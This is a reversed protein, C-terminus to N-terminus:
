AAEQIVDQLTMDTEGGVSGAKAWFKSLHRTGSDCIITVIRHGPGMQLALRAAAAGSPDFTLM